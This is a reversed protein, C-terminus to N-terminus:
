NTEEPGDPNYPGTPTLPEAESTTPDSIDYEPTPANSAASTHSGMVPVPMILSNRISHSAYLAQTAHSAAKALSLASEPTHAKAARSVLEEVDALVSEIKAKSADDLIHYNEM